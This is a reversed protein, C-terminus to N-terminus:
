DLIDDLEDAVGDFIKGLRDLGHNFFRAIRATDKKPLNSEVEVDPLESIFKEKKEPLNENFKEIEKDVLEELKDSKKNIFDTFKKAREDLFSNLDWHKGDVDVSVEPMEEKLEDKKRGILEGLKDSAKDLMQSLEESKEEVLDGVKDIKKDVFKKLDWHSVPASNKKALRRQKWASMAEAIQTWSKPSLSVGLEAYGTFFEIAVDSVDIGMISPVVIGAALEANLLAIASDISEQVSQLLQAATIGLTTKFDTGITGASANQVQGFIKGTESHLGFKGLFDEFSAQVAVEEEVTVTVRLSGTFAMAGPVFEASAPSSVWKGSLGVAKGSGYKTLLQPIIAGLEDTTVTLNLYQSL